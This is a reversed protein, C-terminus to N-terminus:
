YPHLPPTLPIVSSEGSPWTRRFSHPQSPKMLRRRTNQWEASVREGHIDFYRSFPAPPHLLILTEGRDNQQCEREM